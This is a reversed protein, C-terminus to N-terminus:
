KESFRLHQGDALVVRDAAISLVRRGEIADGVGVIQTGGSGLALLAHPAAGMVIALVHVDHKKPRPPVGANKRESVAPLARAFPDGRPRIEHSSSWDHPVRVTVTSPSLREPAPASQGFLPILAFGACVFM